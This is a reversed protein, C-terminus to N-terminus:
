NLDVEFQKGRKCLKSYHAHTGIWKIFLHVAKIGFHYACILRYKNGGINFVVRETGNGLIDASKFTSRIDNAISWDAEKIISIFLEFAGKSQSNVEIFEVITQKKILHVKM